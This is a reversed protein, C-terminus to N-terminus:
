ALNFIKKLDGEIDEESCEKALSLEKLPRDFPRIVNLALRHQFAENGFVIDKGLMKRSVPDKPWGVISHVVERTGNAAAVSTKFCGLDMGVYLVGTAASKPSQVSASARDETKNTM